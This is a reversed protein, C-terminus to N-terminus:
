SGEAGEAEIGATARRAHRYVALGLETMRGQGDLLGLRRLRAGARREPAYGWRGLALLEGAADVDLEDWVIAVLARWVARELKSTPKM